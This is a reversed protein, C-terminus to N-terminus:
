RFRERKTMCQCLCSLCLISLFCVCFFALSFLFDLFCFFGARYFISVVGGTVFLLEKQSGCLNFFVKRGRYFYSFCFLNQSFCNQPFKLLHPFYLCVFWVKFFQSSSVCSFFIRDKLLHLCSVIHGMFLQMFLSFIQM